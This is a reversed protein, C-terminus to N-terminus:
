RPELGALRARAIPVLRDLGGCLACDYTRVTGDFSTTAILQGQPAFAASTLQGTHGVLFYFRDGALDDGATAWVGAKIPGATVIWKGDAAFGVGSVTSSHGRFTRVTQGTAVDWLRADKDRSSTALLKGDPSFAIGTVGDSHGALERVPQGDSARWLRVVGDVAGTAILRGDPSFVADLVPSPHQITFLKTATGWRWVTVTADDGGAALLRSDPSFAVSRLPKGSGRLSTAGGGGAPWVRAVGDNGAGAVYRGDNSFAADNQPVGAILRAAEVRKAVAWVRVTGDAGASVVRKGDASFAVGFARGDHKGLVELPPEGVPDWLRANGDVGASLVTTGDPSFRAGNVAETHGLLVAEVGSDTTRWIRVTRDTGATALRTGDPSFAASTVATTHGALTYQLDLTRLDWLRITVDSSTTALHNGDPSFTVSLVDGIHGAFTHLARGDRADWLAALDDRGGTAVLSGDPSLAATIVQGRQSFTQLLDGTQVDYLRAPKQAVTVAAVALIKTGDRSFVASRVVGGLATRRVLLGSAADWLGFTQDRSATLVLRGDPSFSAATIPGDHRLTHLAVDNATNWLVVRGDSSGTLAITGDPSFAVTDVPSGPSLSRLLKGSRADFIRAGGTAATLIRTGPANFVAAQVPGGGGPLIHRGKTMLLGLRLAREVLSPARNLDSAQLGLRLTEEPDRNVLAIANFALGRAKADIAQARAIRAQREARQRQRMAERGNRTAVGKEHLAKARAARAEAARNQAVRAQHEADRRAAEADRQADRATGLAVQTAAQAAIATRANREARAKEKKAAREQRKAEVRQQQADKTKKQADHQAAVARAASRQAEARQERAFAAQDRAVHRQNFAYATMGTMVVLLAIAAVLGAALRRQRRRSGVREHEVDRRRRWELIAEALVDHFIEYRDGGDETEDLPRLIRERGLAALVPRAEGPRLRAFEALDSSRHAIKTGSPTVLHDFMRAAADQEDADLVGLARDLHDRVIAAAGGLEALTSPRLVRSGHEHEENWIREMVLQLYPAEVRGADGAASSQALVDDVLEPEVDVRGDAEVLENWRQVPGLIAARAADRDLRDLRLTNAFLNPIRAKFVDLRSLSDDRLSLMLNARLGPRLVVEPLEGVLTGPGDEDEHYVFHEELQDLVICLDGDLLQSWHEVVDALSSGGPPRPALPSVLPAVEAEIADALARVPEDTWSSFVVVAVDPGRGVARRTGLERLRRAVGARLLSSKGVGSPGYLVTLRAAILNALAIETERERGFFLLADLESDGFPALGRYPAALGPATATSV